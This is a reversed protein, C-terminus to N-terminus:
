PEDGRAMRELAAIDAAALLKRALNPAFGARTLAALDKERFSPRDQPPRYPGLRRRRLFACAATLESAGGREGLSAIARDIAARSLGKQMLWGRIKLHSAGARALRAAQMEAYGGDDLLRAASFRAILAEVLARGEAAAAEDEPAAKAVRRMLIRRVTESSSAYRALHAAAARELDAMTLPGGRRPPTGIGVRRASM